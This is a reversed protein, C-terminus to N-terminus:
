SNHFLLTEALTTPLLTEVCVPGLLGSVSSGRYMTPITGYHNALTNYVLIAIRNEGPMTFKSIDITWPPAVKIGAPRGNVHVEATAAAQGLHLLVRGKVQEPSLTFTKRYWAGGSYHALVGMQSWDGLRIKGPECDLTVPDPIAAGAYRGPEQEIRLAVNVAGPEVQAVAARYERAGDKRRAGPEVAMEKGNAWARVKGFCPLTLSRFGPPTMFRYWGAKPMSGPRYDFIPAAPDTFWSMALDSPVFQPYSDAELMPGTAVIGYETYYGGPETPWWPSPEFGSIRAAISWQSDDFDLDLWSPQTQAACRWSTDTAVVTSRGSPAAMVLEAILGAPGRDNRGRVCIVNRGRHLSARVDYEQVLNWCDGQGIEQGNLYVTYRDACTIRLRAQNLNVATEFTKRFFCHTGESANSCWVYSAAPSFITEPEPPPAASLVAYARVPMKGAQTLRVLMRHEGQRIDLPSAATTKAGDLWAQIDGGTNKVRPYLWADQPCRVGTWFYWVSGPQGNPVDLFEDHIIEKLGHFGQEGPKGENGWRLSFDYSRWHYVKGAVEVAVNPDIGQIALLKAELDKTDADPPLPGLQWFQPGFSSTITRWQSDDFDAASWDSVDSGLTEEAYHFQRAEAGIMTPTPPWHFDGWRNDMTPKLEFDWLGDLAIPPVPPLAEGALTVLADGRRVQATKHGATLSYGQIGVVGAKEKVATIEDLDTKEVALTQEGPGFVIVQAEYDEQPMRIRTGDPCVSIGFLPRVEGTWPDWLEVKGKARFFCESNKPAGLVMYVDRSGIKRHLAQNLRNPDHPGLLAFDPTFAQAIVDAVEGAQWVFVGTGGAANHRAEHHRTAAVDGATMGFINKVMADLDPDDRGLRDSAEPLAGVAIVLGGAQYFELAKQLTSYRVASMAPLVLVRYAEGAVHLQRDEITARALSQFDMYDFDIGRGGPGFLHDGIAFMTDVAQRGNLGAEMAAVPYLVAVDCRHVGQSLLYCLRQSYRLYVEMHPWYPMRFHNCPPAWEWWGGHTSYYLGHLALLNSGAVFNQVTLSTLDATTVGWGSSYFGELWVRPREYLHAISSNVKNKRIISPTLTPSDNGPGLMWRQTRFYDGFEVINMGRGGHDSGYLMGRDYHWQFLPRFYYDESLSVMMDRYDLRVKATRPGIDMFIAPLEPALDYGKRRRFEETVGDSWLTGAMWEDNIGLSLEDSFFFNLGRGGEGPCHDEFRRFAKEVAKNGTLPNLVDISWTVIEPFIVVIRWTGAPAQWHLCYGALCERLDVGTEPRITGNSTQYAMLSVPRAPLDWLDWVVERPGCLDRTTLRLVRGRLTPNERLVEDNWWGQGPVCLCYDSLSIAMGQKKAEDMFWRFLDWWATSFLPPESPYTPGHWRKGWVGHAYNVQLGMIPMGRLQELQWAIRERTLPDGLWWYFGVSGYGPPPDVFGPQVDLNPDRSPYGVAGAKPPPMQSPDADASTGRVGATPTLPRISM